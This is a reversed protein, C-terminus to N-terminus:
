DEGLLLRRMDDPHLVRRPNHLAELVGPDADSPAPSPTTAVPPSTSASAIQERIWNLPQENTEFNCLPGLYVAGAEVIRAAESPRLAAESPGFVYIRPPYASERRSVRSRVDAIWHIADDTSDRSERDLEIVYVSAPEGRAVTEPDHPEDITSVSGSSGRVATESDGRSELTYLHAFM